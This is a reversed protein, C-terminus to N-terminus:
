LTTVPIQSVVVSNTPQLLTSLNVETIERSANEKKVLAMGCIPCNGPEDRIIQPHMPCTYVGTDTAPQINGSKKGVSNCAGLLFIFAFVTLYFIAARYKIILNM